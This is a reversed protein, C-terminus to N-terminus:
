ADWIFEEIIFHNGIVINVPGYEFDLVRTGSKGFPDVYPRM